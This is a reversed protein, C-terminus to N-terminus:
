RNAGNLEALVGLLLVLPVNEIFNLQCRTAIYLPDTTGHESNDGM